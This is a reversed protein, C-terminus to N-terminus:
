PDGWRPGCEAYKRWICNKKDFRKRPWDEQEWLGLVRECMKEAIKKQYQKRVNESRGLVWNMCLKPPWVKAGPNQKDIKNKFDMWMLKQLMSDRFGLWRSGHSQNISTHQRTNLQCHWFKCLRRKCFRTRWRATHLGFFCGQLIFKLEVGLTFHVWNTFTFSKPLNISLACLGIYSVMYSFIFAPSPSAVLHSITSPTFAKNLTTSTPCIHM